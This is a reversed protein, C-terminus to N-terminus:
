RFLNKIRIMLKTSFSAGEPIVQGLVKDTLVQMETNDAFNTRAFQALKEIWVKISKAKNKKKAFLTLCEFIEEQSNPIKIFPVTSDIRKMLMDADAKIAAGSSTEYDIKKKITHASNYIEIFSFIKESVDSKESAKEFQEKLSKVQEAFAARAEEDRRRNDEEELREQRAKELKIDAEVAKQYFSKKQLIGM